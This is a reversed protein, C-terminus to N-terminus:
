RESEYDSPREVKERGESKNSARAADLALRYKNVLNNAKNEDGTLPAAVLSALFLTFANIFSADFLSVDTIQYTYDCIASELNSCIVKANSTPVYAEIYDQEDKADLTGEDYVRRVAACKTPLAYVYDWGTISVNSIETLAVGPRNAFNWEHDRLVSELASDYFLNLKRAAEVNDTLATIPKVGAHSLAMNCIDVKTVAM